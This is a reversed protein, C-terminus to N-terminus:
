QDNELSCGYKSVTEESGRDNIKKGMAKEILDLLLKARSIFYNDFDNQIFYNYVICNSEVRRRLENEDIGAEKMIKQSYSKPSAGGIQRNTIASLPTKNIISNWKNEDLNEGKCYVEPFIHHIDIASDISHVLSMPSDSMFDLSHQLFILAIIGKYAASNRSKLSLLRTSSFYSENVTKSNSEVGHIENLVDVIDNAFRTENASGYMEGLIGCWFWRSLIKQTRQQNFTSDDISACIAALPILQTNYPLDKKLFVCQKNLFSRVRKFGKLIDDKNDRYSDLSLLLVDKKKCSVTRNLHYNSYLTITTLFATEDIGDLVDSQLLEDKGQIINKTEEWDKRLDFGDAAFIATVLEFVTLPVGGTNVNEFVKCVAVKPTDKDLTIVPIQYQTIVKLVDNNFKKFKEKFEKEGNHYEKYGDAWDDIVYLDEVDFVLNMPFMENKYELERTSLDLKIDRNFNEKIRKDAPISLIADELDDPYALCKNIDIYYFRQIAGGKETKTDVPEKSCTARYISTLRQQGDLFLFEPETNSVAVGEIPRYKFHNNQNNFVLRMLAGMPYGLSLSTLIGIIRNDDWRWDRQFEPLQAKGSAVEKMLNRLSIDSSKPSTHM